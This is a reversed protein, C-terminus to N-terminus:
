ALDELLRRLRPQRVSAPDAQQLWAALIGNVSGFVVAVSAFAPMLKFVATSPVFFLYACVLQSAVHALATLISASVMGFWRAPLFRVLALALLAGSAGSFSLWFGPAFLNGFLMAVAVVRLLSVWAACRLGYRAAVLLIVINALGPKVGPIPSPLGAELMALGIAALSLRVVRRDEATVELEISSPITAM